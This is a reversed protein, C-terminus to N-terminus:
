RSPPGPTQQMPSRRHPERDLGDHTKLPCCFAIPSPRVSIELVLKNFLETYLAKLENRVTTDSPLKYKAEIYRFLAALMPAEGTTWPLNEELIWAVFIRLFGKQTARVEPNDKARDLWDRLFKSMREDLKHWAIGDDGGDGDGSLKKEKFAQFADCRGLHGALNNM